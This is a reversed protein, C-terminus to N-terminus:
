SRGHGPYDPIWVHYNRDTLFKAYFQWDSTNGGRGPILLILGNSREVPCPHTLLSYYRKSKITFWIDTHKKIIIDRYPYETHYFRKSYSCGAIFFIGSIIFLIYIKYLTNM